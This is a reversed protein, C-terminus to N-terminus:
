ASTTCYLKSIRAEQRARSMFDRNRYVRNPRAWRSGQRTFTSFADILRTGRWNVLEQSICQLGAQECLREFLAATMSFARWSDRDLVGLNRLIQRLGSPRKLINFVAFAKKYEGINSHHIFGVGDPKLKRALQALYAAVVDAEAHVLSDFSFVFDISNDATMALSKGDNVHYTMHSESAFRAKCAEICEGVLDVIILQKSYRRLYETWRGFGPAIELITEAPVYSHIRPYIAFFWQTEVGGWSKSWQDGRQAWERPNTWLEVNQEVTPM